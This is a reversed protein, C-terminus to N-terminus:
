RSLSLFTPKNSKIIEDLLNPIEEKTKPWYQVIKPLISLLGKADPNQHSWGDSEYDFDRGSGVLIVPIQEHDIYNRITEFPRYLLFNTISYVFVIKGSLALGCAIGMMSQESAGCNIFRDPFEDRIKDFGGMGLDGTLAFIQDNAKMQKYLEVFFLRRM